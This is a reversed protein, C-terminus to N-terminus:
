TTKELTDTVHKRAEKLKEELNRIEEELRDIRDLLYEERGGEKEVLSDRDWNDMILSEYM